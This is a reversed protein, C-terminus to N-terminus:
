IIFMQKWLLWEWIIKIDTLETKSRNPRIADRIVVVRKVSGPVSGSVVAYNNKILGYNTFGGKPNIKSDNGIILLKKNFTTRNHFGHQGARPVTYMVTSPNWPGISGVHRQIQQAKPRLIKIGFRKVPGTFGHGKTISKIDLYTDIKFIDKFSITKLFNEKLYEIKAEYTGSLPVEFIIPKKQGTSTKSEDLYAILTLNSAKDKNELFKDLEIKKTSKKGKIKKSVLNDFSILENVTSKGFIVDNDKYLRVGIVKLDPVEIVSVPIAIEQGYSSSNKHANKALVQSMGVKIGFFCLPKVVDKSDENLFYKYKPIISRARVRPYFAMSGARPKYKRPM